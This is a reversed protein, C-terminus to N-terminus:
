LVAKLEGDSLRLGDVPGFNAERCWMAAVLWSFEMRKAIGDASNM